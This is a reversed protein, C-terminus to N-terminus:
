QKRTVTIAYGRRETMTESYQRSRVCTQALGRGATDVQWELCDTGLNVRREGTYGGSAGSPVKGDAMTIAMDLDKCIMRTAPYVFSRSEPDFWPLPVELKQPRCKGFSTDLTYTANAITLTGTLRGRPHSGTLTFVGDYVLLREPPFYKGACAAALLVAASVAAFKM